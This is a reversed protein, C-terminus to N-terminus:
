EDTHMSERIQALREAAARQRKEYQEELTRGETTEADLESAGLATAYRNEIKDRISEFTPVGASDYGPEPEAHPTAPVPPVREGRLAPTNTDPTGPEDPM